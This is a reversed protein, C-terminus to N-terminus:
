IENEDALRDKDLGCCGLGDDCEKPYKWAINDYYKECCGFLVAYRSTDIEYTQEIPARMGHRETYYSM